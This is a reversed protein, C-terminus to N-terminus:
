RLAENADERAVVGGGRYSKPAQRSRPTDTTFSTPSWREQKSRLFDHVNTVICIRTPGFRDAIGRLGCCALPGKM